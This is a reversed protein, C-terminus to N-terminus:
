IYISPGKMPGAYQWDVPQDAFITEQDFCGKTLRVCKGDRIDIAPFIIM